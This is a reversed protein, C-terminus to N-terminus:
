FRIMMVVVLDLEGGFLQEVFEGQKALVDMWWGM